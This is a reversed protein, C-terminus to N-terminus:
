PAPSADALGARVADAAVREGPKVGALIEIGDAGRSAGTRVARLVFRTGQAVYVASLEGRRLVAAAPLVLPTQAAAATAAPTAGAFHVRLQQGPLLPQGTTARSALGAPLDLRWEVTQSVADAGPLLQRAVPTIRQGDALEVQVQQAGRAAAALSAPVQVVARLAGPAYVTAIARGPTALDGAQVHTALVVADFPASITSFGRVLSAQTRGAQAQALGAQAAKLATDAQDLAAQSVFGHGRLERAREAALRANRWEAEAQAVGAESRLVGAQLEREDVRAVPQGAKVRDGAKVQLAVVNGGVQAALTAQRVPQLVGDLSMAGSATGGRAPVTAVPTAAGAPAAALAAFLLAVAM